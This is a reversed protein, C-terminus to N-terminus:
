KRGEEDELDGPLFLARYKPDMQLNSRHLLARLCFSIFDGMSESMVPRAYETLAELKNFLEEETCWLSFVAVALEYPTTRELEAMTVPLGLSGFLDPFAELCAALLANVVETALDEGANDEEDQPGEEFLQELAGSAVGGTGPRLFTPLHVGRTEGLETLWDAVSAATTHVRLFGRWDRTERYRTSLYTDGLHGFLRTVEEETGFEKLLPPSHAFSPLIQRYGTRELKPTVSYTAALTAHDPKEYDFVRIYTIITCKSFLQDLGERSAARLTSRITKTTTAPNGLFMSWNVPRDKRDAEGQLTESSPGGAQLPDPKTKNFRAYTKLHPLLSKNRYPTRMLRANDDDLATIDFWGGTFGSEHLPQHVDLGFDLLYNSGFWTIVRDAPQRQNFARIDEALQLMFHSGEPNLESSIMYMKTIGHNVLMQIDGMVAPLPRYRVQKGAVHPECCFVCAHPCGRIVEVPAGEFGPSPFTDYFAMMEEIIQPTYEPEANPSYFTRPNSVLQDGQFYLLNATEGPNGAKVEEFHEFFADSGGFVGFEPHLHHMIEEPLISFGFGGLAILLDSVERIAAILERTHEIPFYASRDNENTGGPQYDRIVMSDTNRLTILVMAPRHREILGKLTAEWEERPIGLMDKCVVEIGHQRAVAPVQIFAYPFVPYTEMNSANLLLVKKSCM